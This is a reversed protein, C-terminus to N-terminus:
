CRPTGRTARKEIEGTRLMPRSCGSSISTVSTPTTSSRRNKRVSSAFRRTSRNITPGSTLIEVCVSAAPVVSQIRNGSPVTMSSSTPSPSGTSVGIWPLVPTPRTTMPGHASAIADKAPRGIRTMRQSRGPPVRRPLGVLMMESPDSRSSARWAPTSDTSPRRKRISMSRSSASGCSSSVQIPWRIARPSATSCTVLGSARQAIVVWSGEVPARSRSVSRRRTPARPM